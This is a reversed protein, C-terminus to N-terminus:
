CTAMRRPREQSCRRCEAGIYPNIWVCIKLGREHNLRGLMGPHM